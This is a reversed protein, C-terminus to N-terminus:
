RSRCSLCTTNVNTNLQNTTPRSSHDARLRALLVADRRTSTAQGNTIVTAEKANADNGAIEHHGSTQLLMHRLESTDATGNMLAKHLSRSDTCIAVSEHSPLLWELATHM